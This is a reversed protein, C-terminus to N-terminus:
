SSTSEDKTEVDMWLAIQQAATEVLSKLQGRLPDLTVGLIAPGELEENWERVFLKIAERVARERASPQLRLILAKKGAGVADKALDQIAEKVKPSGLIASITVTFPDMRRTYSPRLHGTKRLRLRVESVYFM